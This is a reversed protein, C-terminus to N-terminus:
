KGFLLKLFTGWWGSNPAGNAGAAIYPFGTTDFPDGQAKTQGMLHYGLGALYVEDLAPFPSFVNQDYAAGQYGALYNAFQDRDYVTGDVCFTDGEYEDRHGFDYPGM